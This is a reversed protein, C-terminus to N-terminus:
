EPPAIIIKPIKFGPLPPDSPMQAPQPDQRWAAIPIDALQLLDQELAAITAREAEEPSMSRYTSQLFNEVEPKQFLVSGTGEPRNFTM